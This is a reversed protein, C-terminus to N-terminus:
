RLRVREPWWRGTPDLRFGIVDPHVVLDHRTWLLPIVAADSLVAAEVERALQPDHTVALEDLLAATGAGSWRVWNEIAEPRFAPDLMAAAVAEGGRTARLGYRFLPSEGSEVGRVLSALDRSQLRVSVDLTRELDAAIREAITAHGAGRPYALTIPVPLDVAGELAWEDFLERALQPDHVCHACPERRGGVVPPLIADAPEVSAGRVEAALGVRDIAASVARRLRVDGFPAVDIAFGYAYLAPM